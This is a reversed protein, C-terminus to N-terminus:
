TDRRPEWISVRHQRLFQIVGLTAAINSLCFYYPVYFWPKRAWPRGSGRWGAIALGYLTAQAGLVLRWFPRHLLTLNAVAIGVVAVGVLRRVVKHSWLQVSYFGGRWPLLLERIGWVSRLGRTVIRVKRGYEIEDKAVPPEWTIAEPEFVLRYGARIVQTSIAFDDTASPDSIPCFLARRIAYLSGSASVISGLRSEAQKVWKDYEWYLREGLGASSATAGPERQENASVGGVTPDAFNAAIARLAGPALIANADTFILIENQAATVARNLTAAKGGREYDLFRVGNASYSAVVAGSDDTSGDSAVLVEVLAPPYDQNLISELKRPLIQAENHAPIVISFTPEAPGKRIPRSRARSLLLLLLPYGAYAYGVCGILLLLVRQRMGGRKPM